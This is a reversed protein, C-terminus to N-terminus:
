GAAGLAHAPHYRRPLGPLGPLRAIFRM